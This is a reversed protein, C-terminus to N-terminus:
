IRWARRLQDTGPGPRPKPRFYLFLATSLCRKRHRQDAQNRDHHVTQFRRMQHREKPLHDEVDWPLAVQGLTKHHLNEADM